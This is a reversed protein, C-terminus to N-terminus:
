ERVIFRVKGRDHPIEAVAKLELAVEGAIKESLTQRVTALAGTLDGKEGPVYEVVISLDRRQVVRFGDVVEPFADFITTLYEGNVKRGSPLEFMESIRGKVSDMLPLTRGCPCSKGLWRGRDGNEYRILPFIFEDYHTLLTRGWEGTAVPRNDDGVFEIGVHESNVHLGSREPCQAAISGIECSGYQDCVPAKFVREVQERITTTIPASTLWVWKPVHTAVRNREVFDALESIAGVYGQLVPPKIRNFQRIFQEMTEVSMMSADLKVKRTPWWVLDNVVQQRRSRPNRWVYGGSDWPGTGWWELLRWTFAEHPVRRDYRVKLPMGTSGGTTTAGAWKIASRDTLEEFQERIHHKELIPLKEFWREQEMDGTEFGTKGYHERYFPISKIAFGVLERKANEEHEQWQEAQWYQSGLLRNYYQFAPLRFFAYKLKFLLQKM